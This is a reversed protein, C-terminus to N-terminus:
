ILCKDLYKLNLWVILCFMMNINHMNLVRFEAMFVHLILFGNLSKLLNINLILFNYMM